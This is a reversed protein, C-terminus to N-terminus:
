AMVRKIEPLVVGRGQCTTCTTKIAVGGERWGVGDCDDCYKLTLPSSPFERVRLHEEWESPDGGKRDKFVLADRGDSVNSGMQKMFFSTEPQRSAALYLAWNVDFQRAKPGSEGGVILWDLEHKLKVREILPEASAFLVPVFGKLDVLLQCNRDAEEQTSFSTGLWVNLWDYGTNALWMKRINEPRKTLLLFDLWKCDNFLSFAALRLDGIQIPRIEALSDIPFVHSRDSVLMEDNERFGTSSPVWLKLGNSNVMPGTYDEFFDSMSNVFVRRRVGDKKAKENWRRVDSWVSKIMRRPKKEGWVDQGYMRSLTEAYCNTCGHAVKSCGWFFNATHDCWEIKTKAGM